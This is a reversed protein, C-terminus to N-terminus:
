SMISNISDRMPSSPTSETYGSPLFNLFLVFWRDPQSGTQAAPLRATMGHHHPNRIITDRYKSHLIFFDEKVEIKGDQKKEKM